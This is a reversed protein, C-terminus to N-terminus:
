QETRFNFPPKLLYKDDDFDKSNILIDRNNKINGVKLTKLQINNKDINFKDLITPINLQILDEYKIIEIDNFQTLVSNYYRIICDLEKDVYKKNLFVKFDNYKHSKLKEDDVFHWKMTHSAITYSILKQIFDERYLLIKYWNSDMSNVIDLIGDLTHTRYLLIDFNNYDTETKKLLQSSDFGGRNIHLTNLGRNFLLEGFSKIRTNNCIIGELLNGGSRGHSFIIIKNM